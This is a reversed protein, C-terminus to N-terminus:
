RTRYADIASRFLHRLHQRAPGRGTGHASGAAAEARNLERYIVCVKHPVPYIGVDVLRFPPGGSPM